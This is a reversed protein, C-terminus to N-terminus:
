SDSFPGTVRFKERSIVDAIEALMQQSLIVTHKDLLELVVRRPKGDDIFASVLVNTDLVVRVMDHAKPPENGM